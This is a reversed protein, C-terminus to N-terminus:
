PLVVAKVAAGSATAELAAVADSLMFGTVVVDEIGEAAALAELADVYDERVSSYSGVVELEKRVMLNVDFTPVSGFLAVVVCRRKPPLTRLALDLAAGSGSAEVWGEVARPLDDARSVTRLGLARAAPMRVVEDREIGLLTVDAGRNHLLWASLLGIPGPGSVVVPRGRVDGVLDVAHLAVSLPETLVARRAPIGPPVPVLRDADVVLQRALGGDFSLGLVEREACLQRHGASCLSCTGCGVIAVPVVLRDVWSPDVGPGVASVRGVVEHGLVVPTRVWGYGDDGRWAHVDSGCLGCGLVDVLAQGASPRPTPVTTVRTDEVGPGAKVLALGDQVDSM